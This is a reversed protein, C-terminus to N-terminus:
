GAQVRIKRPRATDVKPLVLTLVGDKLHASIKAQDIQQGLRFQRMFHGPTYEQHLPKWKADLARQRATITLLNDELHTEVDDPEVGPVDATLVLADATEYIDVPPEFWNGQHTGTERSVPHKERVPMEVPVDVREATQGDNKTETQM